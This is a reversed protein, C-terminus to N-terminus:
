RIRSAPPPPPPRLLRRRPPLPFFCAKGSCRRLRSSIKWMKSASSVRGSPNMTSPPVSPFPFLRLQSNLECSAILRTIIFSASPFMFCRDFTVDGIRAPPVDGASAKMMSCRRRRAMSRAALPPSTQPRKSRSQRFVSSASLALQDMGSSLAAWILGALTRRAILSQPATMTRPKRGSPASIAFSRSM